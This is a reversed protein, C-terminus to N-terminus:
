FVTVFGPPAKLRVPNVSGASTALHLLCLSCRPLPKRCQSCCTAQNVCDYMCLCVMEIAVFDKEVTRALLAQLPITHYIDYRCQRSWRSLMAGSRKLSLHLIFYNICFILDTVSMGVPEMRLKKGSGAGASLCYTKLEIGVRSDLAHAHTKMVVMVLDNTLRERLLTITQGISHM